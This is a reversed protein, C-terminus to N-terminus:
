KIFEFLFLYRYKFSNIIENKSKIIKKRKQTSISKDIHIYFNLELNLYEHFFM